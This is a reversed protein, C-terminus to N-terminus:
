GQRGPLRVTITTGEGLKSELRINGDHLEVFKKSVTLGLGIGRRQFEYVGSSHHLTDFTSFMPEFIHQLDEEAIGVGHDRVTIEVMEGDSDDSMEIDIRGGDPTFKIANLLLNDLVDKIKSADASITRVDELDVNLQIERKEIFPQADELAGQILTLPNVEEFHMTEAVEGSELMQFMRRIIRELRRAGEAIKSTTDKVREPTVKDASMELLSAFGGILTVPTRLEHSAVAMFATKLRDLEMLQQNSEQLELNMEELEKLLTNREVIQDYQQAAVTLVDRLEVIRWPKSLYRFVYGQNIADIILDLETDGTFITQVAEPYDGAMEKLFHRQLMQPIGQDTLIIHVERTKLITIADTVTRSEVVEFLHSLHDFTPQLDDDSDDIVLLTYRSPTSM